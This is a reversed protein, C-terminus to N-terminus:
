EEVISDLKEGRFVWIKQSQRKVQIVGKVRANETRKFVQMSDLGPQLERWKNVMAIEFDSLEM